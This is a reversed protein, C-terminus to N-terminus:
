SQTLAFVAGLQLARVTEFLPDTPAFILTPGSGSCRFPSDREAPTETLTFQVGRATYTIAEVTFRIM